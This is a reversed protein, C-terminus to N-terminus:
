GRPCEVPLPHPLDSGGSQRREPPLYPHVRASTACGQSVASNSTAGSTSILFVWHLSHTNVDANRSQTVKTVESWFPQIDISGANSPQAFTPRALALGLLMWVILRVALAPNRVKSSRRNQPITSSGLPSAIPLILYLGDDTLGTLAAPPMPNGIVRRSGPQTPTWLDWYDQNNQSRHLFLHEVGGVIAVKAQRIM